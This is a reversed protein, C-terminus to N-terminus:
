ASGGRAAPNIEPGRVARELERELEGREREVPVSSIRVKRPPPPVIGIIALASVFLGLAAAIVIM